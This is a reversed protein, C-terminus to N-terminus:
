DTGGEDFAHEHEEEICEPCLLLAGIVDRFDGRMAISGYAWRLLEHPDSPAEQGCQSCAVATLTTSM